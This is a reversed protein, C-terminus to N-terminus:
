TVEIGMKQLAEKYHGGTQIKKRESICNDIWLRYKEPPLALIVNIERLDNIVLGIDLRKVLESMSKYKSLCIVPLSAYVYSTLKGVIARSVYKEHFQSYIILGFNCDALERVLETGFLIGRYIFDERNSKVVKEGNPGLFIYQIEKHEPLNFLEDTMRSLNGIIAIKKKSNENRDNLSYEPLIQDYMDYRYVEKYPYHEQFYKELEVGACLFGDACNFFSRELNEQKTITKQKLRYSFQQLPLDIPIIFYKWSKYKKFFSFLNFRLKNSFGSLVLLQRPYGPWTTLITTERPIRFLLLIENLIMVLHGHKLTNVTKFEFSKFFQLNDLYFDSATGEKKPYASTIYWHKNRMCPIKNILCIILFGLEHENISHNLFDQVEINV